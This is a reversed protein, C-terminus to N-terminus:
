DRDGRWAELVSRDAWRSLLTSVISIVLAGFVAAWFGEIEFRLDFLGAVWATLGLMAANVVLTFLGLTLLTLPCSLISIVPKIFANILGFILAGFILAGAGHVDFGPIILQSFWLAAVNVLFRVILAPAGLDDRKPSGFEFYFARRRTM